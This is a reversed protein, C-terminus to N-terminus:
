ITKVLSPTRHMRQCVANGGVRGEGERGVETVEVPARGAVRIGRQRGEIGERHGQWM